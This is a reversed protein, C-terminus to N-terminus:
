RAAIGPALENRQIRRWGHERYDFGLIWRGGACAGPHEGKGFLLFEGSADGNMRDQLSEGLPPTV